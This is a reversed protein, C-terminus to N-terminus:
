IPVPSETPPVNPLETFTYSLQSHKFGEDIPKTVTALYRRRGFAIRPRLFRQVVSNIPAPSRLIRICHCRGKRPMGLLKRDVTNVSAIKRIPPMYQIISLQLLNSTTASYQLTNIIVKNATSFKADISPCQM